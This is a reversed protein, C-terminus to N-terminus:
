KGEDDSRKNRYKSLALLGAFTFSIQDNKDKTAFCYSFGTEDHQEALFRSLGPRWFPNRALSVWPEVSERILGLFHDRVESWGIPRWEDGNAALALVLLSAMAEAEASRMTDVLPPITATLDIDSPKM